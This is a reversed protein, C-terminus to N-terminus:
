RRTRRFVAVSEVHHTNPYLDYAQLDKLAYGEALLTRTDRALSTPDCAVYIVVKAGSQAIQRCVQRKAGSRPPDLVVLDPYLYREPVSRLTRSVDGHKAEAASLGAHRLNRRASRVAAPAGEISMLGNGGRGVLLGLAQTFLGSGSYLDWITHPASTIQEQAVQLVADVLTHPAERHVQWFGDAQVSYGLTRHTDGIAVDEVSEDLGQSGRRLRGDISLAYNEGRKDSGHLKPVALRIKSGPAFGGDWLRLQRAIGLLETTALPMDDLPVREHSGRRRMSPRGQEDAILEIRTRWHLGQAEDDGPVAHVTVDTDVGGLRRMQQDIVDKKWKRQGPMSVHILDAGGVGGGQALPGALKWVPTVRLDSAELVEIVEATWFRDSDSLGPDLRIRVKEGPLAFRVFVVRGDCHAVCRGQDAFREITVVREDQTRTDDNSM